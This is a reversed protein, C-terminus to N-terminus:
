PALSIEGTEIDVIGIVKLNNEEDYDQSIIVAKRHGDITTGVVETVDTPTDINGRTMGMHHMYLNGHKEKMVRDAYVTKKLTDKVDKRNVEVLGCQSKAILIAQKVNPTGGTISCYLAWTLFGLISFICYGFL